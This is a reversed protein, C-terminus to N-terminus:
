SRSYSRELCSGMKLLGELRGRIMCVIEELSLTRDIGEDRSSLDRCEFRYCMRSDAASFSTDFKLSSGFSLFSSQLM